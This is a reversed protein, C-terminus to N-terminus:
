HLCVIDDIKIMNKEQILHLVVIGYGNTPRSHAM